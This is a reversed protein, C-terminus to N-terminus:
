TWCAEESLLAEEERDAPVEKLSPWLMMWISLAPLIRAESVGDPTPFHRARSDTFLCHSACIGVIDIM